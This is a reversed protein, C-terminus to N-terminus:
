TGTGESALRGHSAFAVNEDALERVRIHKGRCFHEGVSECVVKGVAPHMWARRRSRTIQVGEELSVQSPVQREIQGPDGSTARMDHSRAREFRRAANLAPYALGDSVPQNGGHSVLPQARKQTGGRSPALKTFAIAREDFARPVIM